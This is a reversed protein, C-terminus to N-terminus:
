SIRLLNDCIPCYLAGEDDKACDSEDGSFVYCEDCTLSLELDNGLSM